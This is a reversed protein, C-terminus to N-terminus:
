KPARPSLDYPLTSFAYSVQGTATDSIVQVEDQPVVTDFVAIQNATLRLWSLSTAPTNFSVFIVETGPSSNRISLFNRLQASQQILSVSNVGVLKSGQTLSAYAHGGMRGVDVLKATGPLAFNDVSGRDQKEEGRMLAFEDGPRNLFVRM